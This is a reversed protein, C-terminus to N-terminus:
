PMLVKWERQRQKNTQKNCPSVQLYHLFKEAKQTCSVDKNFLSVFVFCLWIIFRSDEKQFLLPWKDVGLLRVPSYLVVGLADRDNTNLKLICECETRSSRTGLANLGFSINSVSSFRLYNCLYIRLLSFHKIENWRIERLEKRLSPFLSLFYSNHFM